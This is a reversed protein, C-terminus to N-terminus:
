NINEVEKGRTFYSAHLRERVMATEMFVLAISQNAMCSVIPCTFKDPIALPQCTPM